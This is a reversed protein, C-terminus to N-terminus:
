IHILSLAVAVLGCILFLARMFNELADKARHKSDIREAAQEQAAAPDNKPMREKTRLKVKGSGGKPTIVQNM